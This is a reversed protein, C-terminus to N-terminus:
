RWERPRYQIAEALHHTEIAEAGALDAITRAVRLINHYRRATIAKQRVLAKMLSQGADNLSCLQEVVEPPMEANSCVSTADFHAAQIERARKIRHQVEESAEGRRGGILQELRVSPMEIYIDLRDLLAPTVRNWWGAIERASCSCTEWSDGLLGCPCSNMTAILVFSAPYKGVRRMDLVERLAGMLSPRFLPLDDLLLIGRHARAAEPMEGDAGALLAAVTVSHSLNHFPRRRDGEWLRMQYGGLEKATLPPLIGQAAHALMTKGVGTPGVFLIHHGGAVAVELARKAHEQGRVDSFDVSSM